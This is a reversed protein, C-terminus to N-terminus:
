IKIKQCTKQLLPSPYRYHERGGHYLVVVFDVNRSLEQINDFSSYVDFPNAGAEQESAVSFEHECCCFIGVKIGDKEIIYPRTADNVNKGIGVYPINSNQLCEITSNLGLIGHDLIHNNALCLVSPNLKKIGNIAMTPISLNPGCKLIPSAEDCLPAELNFIRFDADKMFNLIGTDFVTEINGDNFYKVNSQTPVFDGGIFLSIM